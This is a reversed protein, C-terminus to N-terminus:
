ASGVVRLSVWLALTSVVVTLPVTLLGLRTFEALNPVGEVGHVSRRWLLTALSGPYTLNPGINVGILVALVPGVGGVAAAPLLLLTAPLNNVVNAVVASVLAVGLLAALSSGAPLLRDVFDGLGNDGVARVVVSLALVFLCFAPAASRIVRMPTTRRQLLRRGALVVAGGAAAWVPEVGALSTLVFGALTGVVVAVAFWPVAVADGPPPSAPLSLDRRFFWRFAAYGLLLTVLWPLAMLAAFRTFSIPVVAFALLNTLNSVPLLLSASNALHASAYLHPRARLGASQATALIVPTLLVVTTDLSLAATTVAAGVFVGALMRPGSGHALRRLEAGVAVFLGEQACTEALALVAALFGVVPGLRTLEAHARPWSVAGVALLLMASPVAAVFEPLGRPRVVAAGLVVALLVISLAELL